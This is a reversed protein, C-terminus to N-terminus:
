SGKVERTLTILCITCTRQVLESEIGPDYYTGDYKRNLWATSEPCNCHPFTPDSNQAESCKGDPYLPLNHHTACRRSGATPECSIRPNAIETPRQTDAVADHDGVGAKCYSM